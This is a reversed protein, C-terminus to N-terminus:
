CTINAVIKAASNMCPGSSPESPSCPDVRQQLLSVRCCWASSSVLHGHRFALWSLTIVHALVACRRKRTSMQTSNPLQLQDAELQLYVTQLVRRNELVQNNTLLQQTQPNGLHRQQPNCSLSSHLRDLTHCGLFATGQSPCKLAEGINHGFSICVHQSYPTHDPKCSKELVTLLANNSRRCTSTLSPPCPCSTNLAVEISLASEFM